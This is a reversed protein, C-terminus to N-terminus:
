WVHEGCVPISVPTNILGGAYYGAIQPEFVKGFMNGACPSQFTEYTGYFVSHHSVDKSVLCTGRVRPNFGEGKDRWQSPKGLISKGFMNGACPSQFAGRPRRPGPHRGQPSKGFMNGACPSQFRVGSDPFTPMSTRADKGFMNGACPSQFAARGGWGFAWRLGCGKGFMNGACPSQFLSLM